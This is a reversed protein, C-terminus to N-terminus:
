AKKKYYIALVIWWTTLTAVLIGAWFSLPQNLSWYYFVNWTAWTAYFAGSSLSIGKVIKDRYLSWINFSLFLCSLIEFGVSNIFDLTTKEM